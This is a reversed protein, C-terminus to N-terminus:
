AIISCLASMQNIVEQYEESYGGTEGRKTEEKEIINQMLYDDELGDEIDQTLTKSRQTTSPGSSSVKDEM